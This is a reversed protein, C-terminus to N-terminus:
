HLTPAEANANPSTSTSSGNRSKYAKWAAVGALALGAVGLVVAAVTAAVSGAPKPKSKPARPTSGAGTDEDEDEDQEDSAQDADRATPKQEGKPKGWGLSGDAKAWVNFGQAKLKAAREAQAPPIPRPAKKPSQQKEAQM